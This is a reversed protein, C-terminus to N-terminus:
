SQQLINIYQIICKIKFERLFFRLPRFRQIMTWLRLMFLRRFQTAKISNIRYGVTIVADLNYHKTSYQKGDSATVSFIEVVSNKELEGDKFINKFHLSINDISFHFILAIM